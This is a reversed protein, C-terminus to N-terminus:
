SLKEVKSINVFPITIGGNINGLVTDRTGVITVRDHHIKYVMGVTVAGDVSMDKPSPKHWEGSLAHPDCWEIRVSDWKEVSPFAKM